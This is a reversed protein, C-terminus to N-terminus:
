PEGDKSRHLELLEARAEEYRAPELLSRFTELTCLDEELTAPRTQRLPALTPVRPGGSPSRPYFGLQQIQAPTMSLVVDAPWGLHVLTARQWRAVKASDHRAQQAM